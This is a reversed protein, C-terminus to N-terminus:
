RSRIALSHHGASGNRQGRFSKLSAISCDDESCYDKGQAIKEDLMRFFDKQSQTLTLKSNRPGFPIFKSKIEPVTPKAPSTNLLPESTHRKVPHTVCTLSPSNKVEGDSVRRHIANRNKTTFGLARQSAIISNRNQQENACVAASDTQNPLLIREQDNNNSWKSVSAGRIITAMAVPPDDHYASGNKSLDVSKSRHPAFIESSTRFMRNNETEESSNSNCISSDHSKTLSSRKEESTSNEIATEEDKNQLNVVKVPRRSFNCGM